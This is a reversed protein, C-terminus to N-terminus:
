TTKLATPTLVATGDQPIPQWDLSPDLAESGMLHRDGTSTVYLSNAPRGVAANVAAIGTHDALALTLTASAGHAATVKAAIATAERAAELLGAGAEYADVALLFLVNADSMGDLRAFSADSLEATLPRAVRSRFDSIWGNHTGALGGATFPHVFPQGQPIGVTTSRVAGLIIRSRLRMSLEVLTQDGWPPLQTRYRLPRHDVTGDAGPVEDFWVIGTGDVNVNGAQMERPAYALEQLSRPLDFLVHSLAVPPGTTAIIRCM